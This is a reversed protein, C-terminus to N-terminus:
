AAVGDRGSEADFLRRLAGALDDHALEVIGRAVSEGSADRVTRLAALVVRQLGGPAHGAPDHEWRFVTTKNVGCIEALAARSVDLSARLQGM